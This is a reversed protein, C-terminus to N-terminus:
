GLEEGIQKQAGKRALGTGAYPYHTKVLEKPANSGVTALGHPALPPVADDFSHRARGVGEDNSSQLFGFLYLDILEDTLRQPDGDKEPRYWTYIWNMMGFLALASLRLAEESRGVNVGRLLELCRHYYQRKKEAVIKYFTDQLFQDERAVVKMADMNTLFFNLHNQIFVRVRERPETVPALAQELTEILVDFANAAIRYLLDAKSPVYYYLGALSLNAERAIERISAQHFGRAAFVTAAARLVQEEREEYEM